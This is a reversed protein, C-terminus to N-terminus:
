APVKEGGLSELVKVVSSGVYSFRGFPTLPVEEHEDTGDKRVRRVYRIAPIEAAPDTRQPLEALFKPSDAFYYVRVDHTETLRAKLVDIAKRAAPFRDRQDPPLERVLPDDEGAPFDMSQSVDVLIPVVPPRTTIVERRREPKSLAALVLVAVTIRLLWLAVQRGASLQAAQRAEKRYVYFYFAALVGACVLLLPLLERAALELNM